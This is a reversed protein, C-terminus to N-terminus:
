SQSPSWHYWQYSWQWQESLFYNPALHDEAKMRLKKLRFLHNQFKKMKEKLKEVEEATPPEFGPFYILPPLGILKEGGSVRIVLGSPYSASLEGSCLDAWGFLICLSLRLHQLTRHLPCGHAAPPVLHCLCPWLLTGQLFFVQTKNKNEKKVPRVMPWLNNTNDSGHIYGHRRGPLHISANGVHNRDWKGLFYLKYFLNKYIMKLHLQPNGSVNIFILYWDNHRILPLSGHWTGLFHGNHYWTKGIFCYFGFVSILFGLAM